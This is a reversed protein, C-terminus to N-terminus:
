YGPGLHLEILERTRKLISKKDMLLAARVEADNGTEGIRRGIAISAIKPNFRTQAFAECVASFLGGTQYHDEVVVILGATLLIDPLDPLPRVRSVHVIGADLEDNMADILEHVVEGTTLVVTRTGDKLVRFGSAPRGQVELPPLPKRGYRMYVSKGHVLAASM